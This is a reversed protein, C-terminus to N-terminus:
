KKFLFLGCAYDSKELSKPPIKERFNGDDDIGSFEILELDHFYELVKQPSHIRHANFCLRPKGVPLSFYLNGGPALIRTLERCARKTGHPDLM